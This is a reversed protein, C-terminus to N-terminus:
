DGGAWGSVVDVNNAARTPLSLGSLKHGQVRFLYYLLGAVLTCVVVAAIIAGAILGADTALLLSRADQNM